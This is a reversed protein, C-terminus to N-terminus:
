EDSEDSELLEDFDSIDSDSTEDDKKQNTTTKKNFLGVSQPETNLRINAVDIIHNFLCLLTKDHISLIEQIRKIEIINKCDVKEIKHDM